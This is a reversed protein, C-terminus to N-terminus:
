APHDGTGPRLHGGCGACLALRRSDGMLAVLDAQIHRLETAERRSWVALMIMPITILASFSGSVLAFIDMGTVPLRRLREKADLGDSAEAQSVTSM